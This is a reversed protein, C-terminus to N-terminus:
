RSTPLIKIKKDNNAYFIHLTYIFSSLHLFIHGTSNSYIIVYYEILLRFFLLAFGRFRKTFFNMVSFSFFDYLIYLNQMNLCSFSICNLYKEQILLCCKNYQKAYSGQLGHYSPHVKYDTIAPIGTKFRRLAAQKSSAQKSSKTWFIYLLSM